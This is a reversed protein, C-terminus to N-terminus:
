KILSHFLKLSFFGGLIVFILSFALYFIVSLTSELEGYNGFFSTYIMSFIFFLIAGGIDFFFINIFSVKWKKHLIIVLIALISSLLISTILGLLPLIM